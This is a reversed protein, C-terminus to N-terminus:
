WYIDISTCGGPPNNIDTSSPPIANEIPITPNQWQTNTCPGNNGDPCINSSDTTLVTAENYVFFVCGTCRRENAECDTFKLNGAPLEFVMLGGSSSWLDVYANNFKANSTKADTFDTGQLFAGNFNAAVGTTADVGLDANTFKVGLLISHNFIAGQLTAGSFDVGSLYADSFDTSNLTAGQASACKGEWQSGSCTGSATSYFNTNTMSVGSLDAQALNVNKLYAGELSAAAHMTTSKLLQAGSLDAGELNTYNLNSGNLLAGELVAQQLSAKNLNTNILRTCVPKGSADTACGLNAYDLIVGALGIAGSLIAGSLDLPDEMTSLTVGEGNHITAGTLDLYRWSKFPFADINLTAGSLDLRCSFDKTLIPDDDFTATSLDTGSLDTCYLTADSFNTGTTTAGSLVARELRASRLNTNTLNAESFNAGQFFGATLDLESLDIGTLNCNECADTMIVYQKVDTTVRLSSAQNSGIVTGDLCATHNRFGQSFGVFHAQEYLVAFTNPGVRISKVQDDGMAKFQEAAANYISFDPVDKQFVFAAGKWNCYSYLAVEGEQLPFYDDSDCPDYCDYGKYNVTFTTATSQLDYDYHLTDDSEIVVPSLGNSGTPWTNVNIANAHMTFQGIGLDTIKIQLNALAPNNTPDGAFLRTDTPAVGPTLGDKKWSLIHGSDYFVNYYPLPASFQWASNRDVSTATAQLANTGSIDGEVFKGNPGTFAMYDFNPMYSTSQSDGLLRAQQPQHLFAKKGPSDIFTGDHIIHMFYQGVPITVVLCDDGRANHM